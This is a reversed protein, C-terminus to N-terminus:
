EVKNGTIPVENGDVEVKGSFEKKEVTVTIAFTQYDPVLEFYLVDNERIEVKTMPFSDGMDTTVDGAVKGDKKFFNLTGTLSGEDTVVSYEWKGIVDKEKLKAFSPAAISIIFLAILVKKM